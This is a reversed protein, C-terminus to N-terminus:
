KGTSGFGDEGRDSDDLKDVYVIHPCYCDQIVLQAIREGDSVTYDVDTLNFLKVNISGRYNSDITGDTIIGHKFMLGSRSKVFGVTGNPLQVHVGTDFAMSGRAPIVASSRAFLDMGADEDHARYPRYAGDEVMVNMDKM